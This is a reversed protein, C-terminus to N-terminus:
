AASVAENEAAETETSLSSPDIDLAEAPDDAELEAVAPDEDAAEGEMETAEEALEEALRATISEHLKTEIDALEYGDAAILDLYRRAEELDSWFGSISSLLNDECHALWRAVTVRTLRDMGANEPIERIPCGCLAEALESYEGLPMNTRTGALDRLAPRFLRKAGKVNGYQAILFERRVATAAEWAARQAAKEADLAEREAKRAEWTEPASRLGVSAPDPCYVVPEPQYDRNIYVAFGPEAKVAEADVPEGDADVLDAVRVAAGGESAFKPRPTVKVGALVLEAKLVELAQKKEQRSREDAIAHKFGWYGAGKKMIRAVAKPDHAFETMAAASALDVDGANAAQQIEEPLQRLSLSQRM